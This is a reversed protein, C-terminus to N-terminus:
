LFRLVEDIDAREVPDVRLMRNKIFQYQSSDLFARIGEIQADTIRLFQANMSIEKKIMENHRDFFKEIVPTIRLTQLHFEVQSANPPADKQMIYDYLSGANKGYSGPLASWILSVGLSWIDAAQLEDFSVKRALENPQAILEPRARIILHPDITYPSGQVNKYHLKASETKLEELSSASIESSLDFDTIAARPDNAGQVLWNAPKLDRHVIKVYIGDVQLPEHVFKITEAMSRHQMQLAKLDFVGEKTYAASYFPTLKQSISRFGSEEIYFPQPTMARGYRNQAINKMGMIKLISAENELNDLIRDDVARNAKVYRFVMPQNQLKEIGKIPSVIVANTSGAGVVEDSIPQM